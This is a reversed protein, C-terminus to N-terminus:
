RKFLSDFRARADDKLSNQSGSNVGRQPVFYDCYNSRDKDRVWEAQNENCANHAHPNHHRCNYCCHLDANCKLCVANRALRDKVQYPTGCKFCVCPDTSLIGM